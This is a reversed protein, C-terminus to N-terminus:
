MTYSDSLLGGWNPAIPGDNLQRAMWSSPIKSKSIQGDLLRLHLGM